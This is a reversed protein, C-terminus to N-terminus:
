QRMSRYIKFDPPPTIWLKDGSRWDSPVPLWSRLYHKKAGPLRRLPTPASAAEEVRARGSLTWGQRHPGHLWGSGPWERGSCGRTLPDGSSDRNEEFSPGLLPRSKQLPPSVQGLSGQLGITYDIQIQNNIQSWLLKDPALLFKQKSLVSCLVFLKHSNQLLFRFILM